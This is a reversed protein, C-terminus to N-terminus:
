ENRKLRLDVIKMQLNRYGNWEDAILEFIVDIEDDIKLKSEWDGFNFGIAKINKVLDGKKNLLRLNLKLHKEGNGVLKLDAIKIDKVLFKPESNARGFPAFKQIQDYNAWSIDDFFLEADIELSKELDKGELKEEAFSILIKKIQELNEKKATFGAAGKHGGYHELLYSCKEVAEMLDFEPISRGSAQILNEKECYIFVPRYYKEAVKTAALGVLGVPWDPSGEFVIRGDFNKLRQNIELAIKDTLKQRMINKNNLKEALERAEKRDETTLLRFATNAHDMRSAANLRPGLVFGLFFVDLNTLPAKGGVSNQVVKPEVRGTKILEQLGIWKTQALVGLGYLVITRNEGLIPMVDAVTAIATLDLLWKKLNDAENKNIKCLPHSIFDSSLLACALKYAVGAGALHKFPYKDDKQHFNIVAVAEPLKDGMEHHDTIIVEMGLSNALQVMELDRSGCDVTIVLKTNNDAIKQVANNNLGHGEKDRDPIYIDIDNASIKKLTLFLIAASCVGDADYDGYIVIRENKKIANLVREVAEGMGKLLFPSHLDNEYDPNFFEDVEAQTNLKRDYLLQIALSSYEPFKKLFIDPATPKINWKM